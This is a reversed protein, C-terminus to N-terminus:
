GEGVRRAPRRAVARRCPRITVKWMGGAGNGGVGRRGFLVVGWDLRVIRKGYGRTEWLRTKRGMFFRAWPSRLSREGGELSYM